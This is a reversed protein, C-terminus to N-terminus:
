SDNVKMYEQLCVLLCVDDSPSVAFRRVTPIVELECRYAASHIKLLIHLNVTM